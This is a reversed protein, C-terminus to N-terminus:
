ALARRLFGILHLGFHIVMGVTVLFCALYPMLWGPNRVVQLVTGVDPEGKVANPIFSAQYFTEGGYRLPNNMYIKVERDENRTPDTLHVLSSFNRPTQTGLYLEHRFEILHITYPKYTRKPRLAFQYTKGEATLPQPKLNVSVLYTGLVEESGKKKLTLYAAAEDVKDANTGSVAPREVAMENLGVGATALNNDEGQVAPTLVSNVLYREVKVDFPLLEHQILGGKQLISDPVVVVDDAKPDATTVFALENSHYDETYNSSSNDYLAMRGEVAFVGTVLESLMLIMIGAHILLIGSRKWSMKFRVLHAAVLNVLLLSGLLWGGPYPFSGTVHWNKPLWFFVQGFRLLAQFPIWAIGTRFYRHLVAILGEDVQAMTGFFVLIFSLVFLVVTIRLSALTILARKLPGVSKSRPEPSPSEVPTAAPTPATQISTKSM